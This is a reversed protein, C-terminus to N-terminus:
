QDIDTAVVVIPSVGDRPSLRHCRDNAKFAIDRSREVQFSLRLCLRWQDIQWAIEEWRQNVDLRATYQLGNVDIVVQRYDGRRTGDEQLVLSVTPM